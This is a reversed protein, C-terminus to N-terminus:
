SISNIELLVFWLEDYEYSPEIHQWKCDNSTNWYRASKIEIRSYNYIADHQHQTRKTMNFLTRIIKECVTGFTKSPMKALSLIYLDSTHAKYFDYQTSVSPLYSSWLHSSIAQETCM